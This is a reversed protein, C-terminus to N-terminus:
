AQAVDLAIDRHACDVLEYYASMITNLLEPQSGAEIYRTAADNVVQGIAVIHSREAQAAYVSLVALWYRAESLDDFWEKVADQGLVASGGASLASRKGSFRLLYRLVNSYAEVKKDRLWQKRHSRAQLTQSIIGGLLGAIAGIIAGLFGALTPNM